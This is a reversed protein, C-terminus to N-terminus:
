YKQLWKNKRIQFVFTNLYKTEDLKCSCVKIFGLM